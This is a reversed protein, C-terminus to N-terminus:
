PIRLSLTALDKLGRWRKRFRKKEKIMMKTFMKWTLQLVRPMMLMCPIKLKTQDERATM